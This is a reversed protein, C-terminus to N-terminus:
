STCCGNVSWPISFNRASQFLWFYIAHFQFFRLLLLFPPAFQYPLGVLVPVDQALMPMVQMRCARTHTAGACLPHNSTPVAIVRGVLLYTVCLSTKLRVERRYSIFSVRGKM